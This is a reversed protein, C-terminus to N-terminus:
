GLLHNLSSVSWLGVLGGSFSVPLLSVREDDSAHGAAVFRCRMCCLLDSHLKFQKGLFELVVEGPWWTDYGWMEGALLPYVAGALDNPQCRAIVAVFPRKRNHETDLLGFAGLAFVQHQVEAAFVAGVLIVQFTQPLMHSPYQLTHWNHHTANNSM